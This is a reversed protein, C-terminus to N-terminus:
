RTKHNKIKFNFVQNYGEYLRQKIFSQTKPQNNEGLVRISKSGAFNM